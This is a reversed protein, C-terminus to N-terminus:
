NRFNYHRMLDTEMTVCSVHVICQTKCLKVYHKFRTRIAVSISLKLSILILRTIAFLRVSLYVFPCITYMIYTGKGDLQWSRAYAKCKTFNINHLLSNILIYDSNFEPGSTCVTEILFLLLSYHIQNLQFLELDFTM